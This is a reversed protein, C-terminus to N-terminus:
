PTPEDSSKLEVEKKEQANEDETEESSLDSTRGAHQKQHWFCASSLAASSSESQGVPQANPKKSEDTKENLNESASYTQPLAQAKAAEDSNGTDLSSDSGSAKPSFRSDNSDQSTVRAPVTPSAAVQTSPPTMVSGNSSRVDSAPQKQRTVSLDFEDRHATLIELQTVVPKLLNMFANQKDIFGEHKYHSYFADINKVLQAHLDILDEITMTNAASKDLQKIFKYGKPLLGEQGLKEQRSLIVDVVPSLNSVLEEISLKKQQDEPMKLQETVIMIAIDNLTDMLRNSTINRYSRILRGKDIEADKEAIEKQKVLINNLLRSLAQGENSAKTPGGDYLLAGKGNEGSLFSDVIKKRDDAVFWGKKYDTLAKEAFRLVRQWHPYSVGEGSSLAAVASISSFTQEVKSKFPKSYIQDRVESNFEGLLAQIDDRKEDEVAAEDGFLVKRQLDYQTNPSEHRILEVLLPNHFEIADHKWQYVNPNDDQPMFAFTHKITDITRIEKNERGQLVIPINVTQKLVGNEVFFSFTSAGKAALEYPVGQISIENSYGNPYRADRGTLLRPVPILPETGGLLLSSFVFDTMIMKYGKLHSLANKVAMKQDEDNVSQVLQQEFWGYILEMPAHQMIQDAKEYPHAYTGLVAKLFNNKKNGGSSLLKKLETDDSTSDLQKQVYEIFSNAIKDRGEIDGLRDVAFGRFVERQLSASIVSSSRSGQNGVQESLYKNIKESFKSEFIDEKFKVNSLKKGNLDVGSLDIGSLNAHSLDGLETIRGRVAEDFAKLIEGKKDPPGARAILKRQAAFDRGAHPNNFLLDTLEKDSLETSVHTVKYRGSDVDKEFRLKQTCASLPNCPADDFKYGINKKVTIELQSGDANSDIYVKFDGTSMFVLSEGTILFLFIGMLPLSNSVLNSAYLFQQNWQDTFAGLIEDKDRLQPHKSKIFHKWISKFFSESKVKNHDFSDKIKNWRDKVSSLSDYGDDLNINTNKVGCDSLLDSLQKRNLGTLFNQLNQDRSFYSDPSRFFDEVFSNDSAKANALKLVEYICTNAEIESDSDADIYKLIADVYRTKEDQIIEGRDADRLDTMSLNAGKLIAGNLNARNLNAGILNVGGLDVNSLDARSLNVGSLDKRGADIIQKVQEAELKVGNLNAGHLNASNLNAGRLDVGRLYVGGLDIGSLDIERLDKNGTAIVQEVQLKTLKVDKLKANSLIAESLDIGSLNAGSLNVGILKVGSLDVGSLDVGKLDKRGTAIIQEVQEAALKAGALSAGFLDKGIFDIGALFDGNASLQTSLYDGFKNKKNQFEQNAVLDTIFKKAIDNDAKFDLYHNFLDNETYTKLIREIGIEKHRTVFDDSAACEGLVTQKLPLHQDYLEQITSCQGILIECLTKREKGTSSSTIALERSLFKKQKVDLKGMDKLLNYINEFSVKTQFEYLEPELHELIKPLLSKAQKSNNVIFALQLVQNNTLQLNKWKESQEINLYILKDKVSSAAECDKDGADGESYVSRVVSADILANRIALRDGKSFAKFM